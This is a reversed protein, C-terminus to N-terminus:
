SRLEFVYASDAGRSMHELQVLADPHAALLRLLEEREKEGVVVYRVRERRLYELLVGPHPTLRLDVFRANAYYGIRQKVGAVAQEPTLGGDSKIWEAALREPVADVRDPRLSKGLGLAAVLALPLAVRLAPRDALAKVRALLEALWLVGLAEYGLLLTASPFVHRRSLYNSTAALGFFVVLYLASYTAVLWGRRGPRGRAAWLGLALLLVGEPRLAKLSELAVLEAAFPLAATGAPAPKDRFAQVGRPLKELDTRGLLLPDAEPRRTPKEKALGLMATVSKKQTISLEGAHLSIVAVYPAMVLAAGACLPAALRLAQSVTWHRRLVELAALACGVVVTGAGEPRVLYALGAFAGAWLAAGSVESLYARALFAASALFPALYLPDSQVDSLELAVPHVALLFGGIAAARAGFGERLFLYVAWVALGGALVSVSVAAREWDPIFAHAAAVAAPYGPHYKHELATAWDGAAIRQALRIFEPGDNMMVATQLWRLERVLWALLVLAAPVLWERRAAKAPEDM